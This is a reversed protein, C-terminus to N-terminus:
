AEDLPVGARQHALQISVLYLAFDPIGVGLAIVPLTAIKVGIGLWAMLAECLVTTVALPIVTVLVARWSRLSLFCLLM